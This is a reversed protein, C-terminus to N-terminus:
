GGGRLRPDFIESLSRNMAVLGLQFLSIAAIPSMIYWVSDKFFVAGRTWALNIMVGWNTESLPVLGLLTLGVVFYMSATMALTFNIAIYGAM